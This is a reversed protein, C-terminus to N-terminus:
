RWGQQTGKTLLVRACETQGKTACMHLATNGLDNVADMRVGADVLLETM